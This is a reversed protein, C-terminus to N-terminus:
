PLFKTLTSRLQRRSYPKFLVDHGAYFDKSRFIDKARAGTVFLTKVSYHIRLQRAISFSDLHKSYHFNLIAFDPLFDTCAPLISHAHNVQLVQCSLSELVRTMDWAIIPEDEALLIKHISM